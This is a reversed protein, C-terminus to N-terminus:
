NPALRSRLLPFNSPRLSPKKKLLQDILECFDESFDPPEQKLPRPAQHIARSITQILDDQTLALPHIQAAYEFVTLAATYLDTRYDLNQRFDARAMEPAFYRPTVPRIASDRTVGTEATSYAIGLDLLVFRRDPLALRMVNLPNIDRHIASHSWIEEIANVLSILLLKAEAEDPKSGKAKILSLLSEGDLFEETYGVYDVNDIAVTRAALSGLKVIEPRVFKGLLDVERLIRGLCEKRYAKAEDTGDDEPLCVLKFIETKGAIETRYM